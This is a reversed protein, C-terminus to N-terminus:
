DAISDTVFKLYNFIYFDCVGMSCLSHINLYLLICGVVNAIILLLLIFM